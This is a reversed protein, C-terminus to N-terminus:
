IPFLMYKLDLCYWPDNCGSLYQYDVKNLNNCKIYIWLKFLDCFISNEKDGTSKRYGSCPFQKIM